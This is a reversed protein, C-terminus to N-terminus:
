EEMKLIAEETLASVSRGTKISKLDLKLKAQPLIMASLRLRKIKSKPRGTKM